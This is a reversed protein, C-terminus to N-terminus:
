KKKGIKDLVGKWYLRYILQSFGFVIGLSAWLELNALKGTFYAILWGVFVSIILALIIKIRPRKDFHKVVLQIIPPLLFGVILGVGGTLAFTEQM